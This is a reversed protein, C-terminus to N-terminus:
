LSFFADLEDDDRSYVTIAVGNEEAWAKVAPSLTDLDTIFIEAIDSARVQDHIQAEIYSSAFSGNNVLDSLSEAGEIGEIMSALVGEEDLTALRLPFLSAINVEDKPSASYDGFSDGNTISARGTAEDRLRVAIRGYGDLSGMDDMRSPTIGQDAYYGYIPRESSPRNDFYDAFMRTEAERRVRDYDDGRVITGREELEVSSLFRGGQIIQELVDENRVRIQIETGDLLEQYKREIAEVRELGLAAIFEGRRFELEFQNLRENVNIEERSVSPEPEEEETAEIEVLEPVPPPAPRSRVMNDPIAMGPAWAPSPSRTLGAAREFPTPSDDPENGGARMTAIGENYYDQAFEDDTLGLEAWEASWPLVTCRCRFHAPITIERPKYVKMNRSGCYKCMREDGVALWQSQLGNEEYRKNAAENLAGMTRTRVMTEAHARTMGFRSRLADMASRPNGGIAINGGIINVVDDAFEQGYRQVDRWSQRAVEAVAGVNVGTVAQVTSNRDISRILDISMDGGMGEVRAYLDEFRQIYADANEPDILTLSEGLSRMIERTRRDSLMSPDSAIRAYDRIVRAELEDFGSQLAGDLLRVMDDELSQAQRDYEEAIAIAQRTTM